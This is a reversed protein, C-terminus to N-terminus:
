ETIKDVTELIDTVSECESFLRQLRSMKMGWDDDDEELSDRDVIDPMGETVPPKAPTLIAEVGEVWTIIRERERPGVREGSSRRVSALHYPRATPEVTSLVFSAAAGGGVEVSSVKGSFLMDVAKSAEEVGENAALFEAATTEEGDLWLKFTRHHYPFM